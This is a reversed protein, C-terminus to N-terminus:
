NDSPVLQSCEDACSAHLEDVRVANRMVLAGPYSSAYVQVKSADYADGARGQTVESYVVFRQRLWPTDREM